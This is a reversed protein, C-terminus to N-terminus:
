RSTAGGGGGGVAASMSSTHVHLRAMRLKFACWRELQLIESVAGQNCASHLCGSMSVRLLM